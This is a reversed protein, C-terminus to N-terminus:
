HAKNEKGLVEDSLMEKFGDVNYDLNWFKGILAIIEKAEHDAVGKMEDLAHVLGVKTKM